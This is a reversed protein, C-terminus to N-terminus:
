LFDIVTSIGIARKLSYQLHNDTLIAGSTLNLSNNNNVQVSVLALAEAARQESLTGTESKGRVEWSSEAEAEVNQRLNSIEFKCFHGAGLDRGKRGLPGKSM